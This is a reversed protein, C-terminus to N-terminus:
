ESNTMEQYDEYSDVVLERFRNWNSADKCWRKILPKWEDWFEVVDEKSLLDFEKVLADM